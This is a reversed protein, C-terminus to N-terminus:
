KTETKSNGNIIAREVFRLFSSQSQYKYKVNGCYKGEIRYEKREEENLTIVCIMEQINNVMESHEKSTFYTHIVGLALAAVCIMMLIVVRGSATVSGLNFPFVWYIDDSREPDTEEPRGRRKIM